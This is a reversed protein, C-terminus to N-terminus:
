STSNKMSLRAGPATVQAPQPGADFWPRLLSVRPMATVTFEFDRNKLSWNPNYAPDNDLWHSWRERMCALERAYRAKQEASRNAGRTASEHHVLQAHPTWIVRYGAARVKLCFDIDNFDVVLHEADMGGVQEYVARKVLMCAATVASLEQTLRARGAHGPADATLHSHMHGAGGGLGLLVGAHQLTKDPYWLRAGVVGVDPQMAHGVMEALWHDDIVEIDNNVLALLEGRCHALAGNNLAAFNFPQDDRQVRVRDHDAMAHLYHLTDADDSGNDIILIEFDPYDTRALVSDVCQRLLHLGNRTPVILSVKPVPHRCCYRVWAGGGASAEVRAALGCRQLHQAIARQELEGAPAPPQPPTHRAALRHLLVHPVHVARRGPAFEFLRLWMDHWAAAGFEPRLGQLAQWASQRVANLGSLYNASRLLELNADCLLWPSHRQGAASAHDSDAYVLAAQECHAVAEALMLLAHPALREGARLPLLWAGRAQAAVANFREAGTRGAPEPINRVREDLPLQVNAAAIILEWHPYVQALLAALADADLAADPVACVSILPRHPLRQLRERLAAAIAPQAPDDQELWVQWAARAKAARRRRLRQHNLRHLWELMAIV